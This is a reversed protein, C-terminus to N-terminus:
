NGLFPDAPVRQQVHCTVMRIDNTGQAWILHGRGDHQFTLTPSQTGQGYLTIEEVVGAEPHAVDNVEMLDSVLFTFQMDQLGLWPGKSFLHLQLSENIRQGGFFNQDVRQHKAKITCVLNKIPRMKVLLQHLREIGDSGITATGAQAQAALFLTLLIPILFKFQFFTANM